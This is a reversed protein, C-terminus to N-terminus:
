FRLTFDAKFGNQKAGSALHGHYSLGLTTSPAVVMDLGAEILASDKAIATGVIDFSEGGAFALASIPMTDGFAHRWGLTMRARTNSGLMTLDTSARLGLTTFSTDTTQRRAHLAASAGTEDFEDARLQVYALAAFSEFAFTDVHMQYGIDGFAQFTGAKYDTQLSDAFGPFVVSRAVDLQHWTYALGTRLGLAGTEIPMKMGGYVGVHYNDSEATSFRDNIHVSTRSYGGVLGLRWRDTVPADAGFLFGGTSYRLEAANSNGDYESWGGLGQGWATAGELNFMGDGSQHDTNSAKMLTGEGDFASRIRNIAADRVFHSDEILATKASAHIEGSIKNLADRASESTPLAAITDYVPSDSGTSELGNGTACQNRNEAVDCFAVKNRTAEIFVHHADYGLTLNVFPMEQDITDFSGSVGNDAGIITWRSGPTYVGPAKLAYVTGGQIETKGRVSILDKELAPTIEAEYQSGAQFTLDGNITFTGVSNGPAIVGGSSITVQSGVGSGVTGHGGLLGNNGVYFSGGYVADSYATDSGVVVRGENVSTSGLFSSSTGNYILAGSGEKIVQGTGTLTGGYVADVLQDFTLSANSAIEVNGGFREAATTLNGTKVTWDLESAGALTLSGAGRKIASGSVRGLRGVDGAFSADSEQDFIVMGANGISGSISGANGILTGSQILTNAYSNQENSLRLIGGGQKILDGDGIVSGTAQLETNELVNFASTQSLTIERATTFSATTALTGGSFLMGASAAGLNADAGVSVTGERLETRGSYTNNGSLILTGYDTKVLSSSGTLISAIEAEMDTGAITGDGVRIVTEGGTGELAITDGDIYYGNVAFQVGNVGISGDSDDVTVTGAAGQFVAYTPNPKFSGNVAGTANTWSRNDARWTGSGGNIKDNDFLSSNGGDWFGLTQGTSNILNIQRDISTQILLSSVDSGPPIAGLELGNDVLSVYDFLRYVGVGFGGQDTINLTGDLTLTGRVNFLSTGSPVGLAINVNSSDNLTLGGLVNLTQDQKGILTGDDIETAGITGAGGLSGGSHVTATGGLAGEGGQVGVLLTGSSVNTAGSFAESNAVFTTTGSLHSVTGGGTLVPTFRHNTGTHNFNLVGRAGLDLSPADLIGAGTATDSAAAGINLVATGTSNRVLMQTAGSAQLLGGNSLTISGKAGDGFAGIMVPGDVTVSSGTGDVLLSGTGLQGYNGGGVNMFSTSSVTGGQTISVQGDGAFGITLDGVALNSGEGEVILSGKSGAGSGINVKDVTSLQGGGTILLQAEDGEIQGVFSQREEDSWALTGGDIIITGSNISFSGGLFGQLSLTGGAVATTGKFASGDGTLTWTSVDAKELVDFGRYQSELASADFSGDARGGLTLINGVGAAVVNGEIVSSAWLELQNDNGTLSIANGSSISRYAGRGATITGANVIRSNNGEISIGDGGSGGSGLINSGSGGNGGSIEAGEANVVQTGTASTLTIGDGGGGGNAYNGSSFEGNGGNGGSIRSYNVITNAGSLM